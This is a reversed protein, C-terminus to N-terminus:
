DTGADAAPVCIQGTCRRSCCESAVRCAQALPTCAAEDEFSVEVKARGNRAMVWAVNALRGLVVSVTVPESAWAAITSKSVSSCAAAFADGTFKVSGLPLGTLTEALMAGPAADIEREETRGTGEATIRLCKVDDPVVAVRLMAQGSETAGETEGDGAGPARGRPRPSAGEVGYLECGTGCVAALVVAFTAPLRGRGAFGVLGLFRRAQQMWRM